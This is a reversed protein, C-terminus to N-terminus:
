YSLNFFITCILYLFLMKLLTVHLDFGWGWIYWMNFVFYFIGNPLVLRLANKIPPKKQESIHSIKKEEWLLSCLLNMQHYTWLFLLSLIRKNFLPTALLSHWIANFLKALLITLIIKKVWIKYNWYRLNNKNFFIYFNYWFM